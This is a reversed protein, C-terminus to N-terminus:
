NENDNGNNKAAELTRMVNLLYDAMRRQELPSLTWTPVQPLIERLEEVLDHLPCKCKKCISTIM